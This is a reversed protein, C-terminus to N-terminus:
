KYTLRITHLFLCQKCITNTVPCSLNDDSLQMTWLMWHEEWKGNQNELSNIGNMNIIVGCKKKEKKWKWNSFIAILLHYFCNQPCVEGTLKTLAEVNFCMCFHCNSKHAPWFFYKFFYYNPSYKDTQREQWFREVQTVFDTTDKTTMSIKWSYLFTFLTSVDVVIDEDVVASSPSVLVLQHHHCYSPHVTRPTISWSWISQRGLLVM